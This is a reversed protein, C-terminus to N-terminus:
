PIRKQIVVDVASGAAVTVPAVEGSLDGTQPIANGSKSVRAGVRVKPFSSLKMAPMMAMSDDLTVELPLDKVQHRAVALPMPPGQVAQAFVFVTDTPTVANELAPDLSVKVTITANGAAPTEPKAAASAAEAVPQGLKEEARAILSRVEGASKPDDTLKPLLRQWYGIATEYEGAEDAAMGALWIGTVNEPELALAKQILEAPKGSLRGGKSMALADAYSLLVAPHDGAKAHVQELTSVADAYRGTAMYARALTFWGNLDDPQQELKQELGAIMEDLTGMAGHPSETAAAAPQAADPNIAQPAGIVLYLAVAVVPTAVATAVAAWRSGKEPEGAAPTATGTAELDSLLTQELEEREAALEEASIDGRAHERELEALRARAIDINQRDRDPGAAAQRRWLPPLVFLLAGAIMAAVILGFAIM